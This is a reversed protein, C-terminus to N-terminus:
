MYPEISYLFLVKATKVTEKRSHVFVLIQYQGAREMVKEYTIENM